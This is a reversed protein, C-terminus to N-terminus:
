KGVAKTLAALLFLNGLMSIILATMVGFARNKWKDVDEDQEAIIRRYRQEALDDTM